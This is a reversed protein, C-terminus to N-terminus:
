ISRTPVGGESRVSRFWGACDNCRYQQYQRTASIALGRKQYSDSGCRPCSEVAGTFLGAHPYNPIWPLLRDLLKDVLVTDQKNYRRMEAWAKPDGALCRTWLDHGAHKVKREGLLQEAVHDLKNSSFRFRKRVVRLLDIQIFPSPPSTETVVFERMVHPVDFSTGNWHVVVDAEDFLSWATDLMKERTDHFESRFLVRDEHKWKAAFCIMRTSERLQSLSVNQQYLGWVDAVNPSTEIDLSLIKV